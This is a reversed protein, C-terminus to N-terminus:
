LNKQPAVLKADLIKVLKKINKHHTEIKADINKSEVDLGQLRHLQKQEDAIFKILEEDALTEIDKDNIYHVTSFEVTTVEEKPQQNTLEESIGLYGNRQSYKLIEEKVEMLRDMNAAMHLYIQIRNPAHHTGGVLHRRRCDSTLNQMLAMVAVYDRNSTIANAVLDYYKRENMMVAIYEDTVNSVDRLFHYM